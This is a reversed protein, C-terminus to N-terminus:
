SAKTGEVGRSKRDATRKELLMLAEECKTIALSNERSPQKADLCKLRDIVVALMEENTTGDNVTRLQISGEAIPVKEIFQIIQGTAQKNEFNELEYKHGTILTKM